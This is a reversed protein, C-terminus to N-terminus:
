EVRRLRQRGVAIQGSVEVGLAEGVRQVQLGGRQMAAVVRQVLGGDLEASQQAVAEAVADLDVAIGHRGLGYVEAVDDQLGGPSRMDMESHMEQGDQPRVRNLRCVVVSRMLDRM